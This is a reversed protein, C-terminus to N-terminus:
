ARGTPNRDNDMMTEFQDDHDQILDIMLCVNDHDVHGVLVLGNLAPYVDEQYNPAVQNEYRYKGIAQAANQIIEFEARINKLQTEVHKLNEDKLFENLIEEEQQDTSM